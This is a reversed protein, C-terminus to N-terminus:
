ETIEDLLASSGNCLKDAETGTTCNNNETREKCGRFNECDKFFSRGLVGFTLPPIPNLTSFMVAHSFVALRAAMYKITQQQTTAGTGFDSFECPQCVNNVVKRPFQGGCTVCDNNLGHAMSCDVYLETFIDLTKLVRYMNLSSCAKLEIINNITVADAKQEFSNSNITCFDETKYASDHSLNVNQYAKDYFPVTDDLAGHFAIMPPINAGPVQTFFSAENSDYTKPIVIGGWLNAVGAIKPWYAPDAPAYYRDSHIKGLTQVITAASTSAKPVSQNIMGQNTILDPSTQYYACGLAIIGGASQGGVFVQTEDIKFEFEQADGSRNKKMISRIAGCGDQIARYRAFQQQVSVKSTDTIDIIRGRRYEVTFCIFGKQSLEICLQKLQGGEYTTCEMFGGAHFLIYAPLPTAYNHIDARPYYVKYRFPNKGEYSNSSNLPDYDYPNCQDGGGSPNGPPATTVDCVAPDKPLDGEAEYLVDNSFPNTATGNKSYYGEVVKIKSNVPNSDSADRGDYTYKYLTTSALDPTCDLPHYTDLVKPSSKRAFEKALAKSFPLVAGALAFGAQRLFTKRSTPM